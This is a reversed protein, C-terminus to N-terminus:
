GRNLAAVAEQAAKRIFVLPHQTLPQLVPVASRDGYSGLAGIAAVRAGFSREQVVKLLAQYVRREGKADGLRGLIGIATVRVPESPPNQLVALALQRGKEPDRNAWYQLVYTRFMDSHADTSWATDLLTTDGTLEVLAALSALRTPENTEQQLMQQLRDVIEPSSEQGALEEVAAERVRADDHHTMDLLFPTSPIRNLMRALILPTAHRALSVRDPVELAAMVQSLLRLRQASNPAILYLRQWDDPTYGLDYRVTAMTWADPDILAFRSNESQPITTQAGKVEFSVTVYQIPAYKNNQVGVVATMPLDFYPEPQEVVLHDGDKRVTLRPAAPTYFWQKRFTDLNTGLSRSMSGFFDETDANKFKFEQLYRRVAPWFKAEGVQHMLMFMRAAGGSYALGDFMDIPDKYGAWVMPRREFTQAGLAGEFTDYRAVDFAEDGFKEREYFPPLFSAWGENLWIHSWNKTTVLDGFWQHALEHAVLSTSDEIPEDVAPHLASITQTTCTVNEMGGFMFDAVASQSYKNWPFPYGTLKEYFAVNNQTDGFSVMGQDELGKPVWFSVPVRGKGTQVESYPGAVFSILYTSHPLDMKWHWLEKDGVTKHEVLRGNSLVSWGAPVVVTGETTAKDDPYDYTPLWNHNDEMEGQTYVIPTHAPYAREAPIYYLGAEPQGHYRIRVHLVDRATAPKPLVVILRDGEQRSTATQGDVTVSDVALRTSDFGVERVDALPRLTNTVDGAISGAQDTLEVRWNVDLLDYTRPPRVPAAYSASFLGLAPFFGWLRRMGWM